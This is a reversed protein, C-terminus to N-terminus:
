VYYNPSILLDTLVRLQDENFELKHEHWCDQHTRKFENLAKKVTGYVPQPETAHRCLSMLVDPLFPPVTYPFALIIAALSLVGAHRQVPDKSNAWQNIPTDYQADLVLGFLLERIADRHHRFVFLNTFVSVQLFKLLALKAKWWSCGTAAQSCISLLLEVNDNPVPSSGMARVLQVNCSNKLEEDSTENTYHALIPILELTPAPMSHLSQTWLSYLTNVLTILVLKDKKKDGNEGNPTSSATSAADIEMDVASDLSRLSACSGAPVVTKWVPAIKTNMVSVVEAITVPRFQPEIKPDVYIGRIDCVATSALCSGVRSRLNQYSQSVLQSCHEFLQRWCEMIRWEGQNLACHLLYLRTTVHFSNDSPKKILGVLLQLLWYVVRVECSGFITAMATGWNKEAENSMSELAALLRPSLWEWMPELKEFRWLKAGTVLGAVMESALRQCGERKDTLCKEIHPKFAPLLADNYNRFLGYFFTFTEAKFQDSGKKEEISMLQIFRDLFAPENFIACIDKELQSFSDQGRNVNTQEAPPNYTKFEQPWTYFGWHIKSFFRTSNWAEATTPQRRSDYLLIKNDERFGYQIPWKAGPGNNAGKNVEMPTKIAKPKHIKMWSSVMAIAMKRAKLTDHVLLRFFLRVADDPFAMDRRLMLSLLSQAMDVHRWHLNGTSLKTLENCLKFYERTNKENKEQERVKAAELEAETPMEWVIKHMNGPYDKLLERALPMVHDPFTFRIQFSSFNNVIIDQATELLAIISQKESFEARVMCPWVRNLTEWDQRVCIGMQKGNLLIYLAGKFQDHTKVAGQEVYHLVDDLVQKYSFTWWTFSTDLVKQAQLRVGSYAATGLRVLLKLAEVHTPTLGVLPKSLQRRANMFIITDEMVSEITAINGRLPDALIRKTLQFGQFQAEYSASDVGKVHLVIRLVVILQLISKTDNERQTLLFDALKNIEAFIARRLNTGDPAKLEPTGTPVVTTPFHVNPTHTPILPIVEGDMYPALTSSGAIAYHILTLCKLIDKDTLNEPKSLVSLQDLIFKQNISSAYDAEEQSPVHWNLKWQNKHVTKAWHRIPLYKDLPQDLVEHHYDSMVPYVATLGYQMNQVISGVLTFADTCKLLSARELLRDIDARHQLIIPGTAGRMM